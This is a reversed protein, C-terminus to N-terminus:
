LVITYVGRSKAQIKGDNKLRQLVNALSPGSIDLAKKMEKVSIGGPQNVILQYVQSYLTKGNTFVVERPQIVVRKPEAGAIAKAVPPAEAQESREELAGALNQLCDAVQTIAKSLDKFASKSDTGTM